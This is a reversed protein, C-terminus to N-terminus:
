GLGRSWRLVVWVEVRTVPLLVGLLLVVGGSAKPIRLWLANNNVDM